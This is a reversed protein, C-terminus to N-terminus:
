SVQVAPRQELLLHSDDAAMRCFNVGIGGALCAPEEALPLSPTEFPGAAGAAELATLYNSEAHGIGIGDREGFKVARGAPLGNGIRQNATIAM